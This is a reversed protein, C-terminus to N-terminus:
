NTRYVERCICAVPVDEMEWRWTNGEIFPNSVNVSANRPKLVPVPYYILTANNSESECEAKWIYQPIRNKEYDCTYKWPCSPLLTDTRNDPLSVGLGEVCTQASQASRALDDYYCPAISSCDNCDDAEFYDLRIFGPFTNAGNILQPAESHGVHVNINFMTRGSDLYQVISCNQQPLPCAEILMIGSQLMALAALITLIKVTTM